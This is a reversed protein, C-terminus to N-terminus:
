RQRPQLGVLVIINGRRFWPGTQPGVASTHRTHLLGPAFRRAAAAVATDVATSASNPARPVALNAAATQAFHVFQRAIEYDRDETSMGELELGYVRAAAAVASEATGRAPACGAGLCSTLIPVTREATRKLVAALNRGARAPITGGAAYAAEGLLRGLFAELEVENTVDLLESTLAIDRSTAPFGRLGSRVQKHMQAEL